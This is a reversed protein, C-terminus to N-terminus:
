LIDYGLNSILRPTLTQTIIKKQKPTLYLPTQNIYMDKDSSMWRPSMGVNKPNQWTSHKKTYKFHESIHNLINERKQSFLLDEYKIVFSKEKIEPTTATVWNRYFTQYTKALNVINFENKGINYDADSHKETAPFELQTRTWDVAHRFCISEIWMYPNKHIVFIITNKSKSVTDAVDTNHKWLPNNPIGTNKKGVVFNQRLLQELYNTGSRQLGYLYFSNM